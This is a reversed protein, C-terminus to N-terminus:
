ECILTIGSAATLQESSLAGERFIKLGEGQVMVVSSAVGGPTMGGDILLPPPADFGETIVRTILKGASDGDCCDPESSINASTVRLLGGAARIIDRALSHDPIRIAESGNEMGLVITLAGPWFANALKHELSSLARGAKEAAAVDSALFAIPKEAERRKFRYIERLAEPSEPLAAIGYVTDTPFIVTGGSLLREAASLVADARGAPTVRIREFASM